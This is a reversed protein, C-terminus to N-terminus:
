VSYTVVDFLVAHCLLVLLCIPFVSKRLSECICLCRKMHVFSGISRWCSVRYLPSLGHRVADCVSLGSGVGDCAKRLFFKAFSATGVESIPEDCNRCRARLPFPILVRRMGRRGFSQLPTIGLARRPLICSPVGPFTTALVSIWFRDLAQEFSYHEECFKEEM